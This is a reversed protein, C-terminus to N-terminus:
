PRLAHASGSSMAAAMDAQLGAPLGPIGGAPLAAPGPVPSPLLNHSNTYRAGNQGHKAMIDTVLQIGRDRLPLKRDWDGPACAYCWLVLLNAKLNANVGVYKVWLPETKFDAPNNKCMEFLRHQIEDKVIHAMGIDVDIFLLELHEDSRTMNKLKKTLLVSNPMITPQKGNDRFSTHMLSIKVVEFPNGDIEVWDGIDYPHVVFLFLMSEFMNKISNGFIFSLGLVTASFASFGALVDINRCLLNAV